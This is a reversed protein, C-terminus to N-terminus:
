GYKETLWEEGRTSLAKARRGGELLASHLSSSYGGYLGVAYSAIGMSWTMREGWGSHTYVLPTGVYAGDPAEVLARAPLSDVGESSIVISDSPIEATELRYYACGWVRSIARLADYYHRSVAEAFGTLRVRFDPFAGAQQALALAAYLEQAQGLAQARVLIRTKGQSRLQAIERLFPMRNSRSDAVPLSEQNVPTAEILVLSYEGEPWSAGPVGGVDRGAFDGTVLVTDEGLRIEVMSAGLLHGAPLLTLEVGEVLRQVGLELRTTRTELCRRLEADVDARMWLLEYTGDSMVVRTEPFSASIDGLKAVHDYHAHTVIVLSPATGSIPAEPGPDIWIDVDSARIRLTADWSQIRWPLIPPRSSVPSQQRWWGLDHVHRAVTEWPLGQSILLEAGSAPLQGDQLHPRIQNLPGTGTPYPITETM